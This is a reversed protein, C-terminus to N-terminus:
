LFFQGLGQSCACLCKRSLPWRRTGTVERSRPAEEEWSIQGGWVADWSSLPRQFGLTTRLWQVLKSPFQTKSLPCTPRLSGWFLRWALSHKWPGPPPLKGGAVSVVLDSPAQKEELCLAPQWPPDNEGYCSRKGLCHALAQCRCVGYFSATLGTSEPLFSQM